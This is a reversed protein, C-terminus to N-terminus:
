FVGKVGLRFVRPALIGTPNGFTAGLTYSTSTAASSNTINFMEFDPEVQYREKIHLARSVKFNWVPVTPGQFQGYPGLRVTIASQNLKGGSTGAGSFTGVEQGYVGSQMRLFSTVKFHLPANYTVDGRAEWNWTNDIPFFDDNPDGQMQALGNIWRHYKTIWFTGMANFRTSYRKVVSAEITSYTDPRSSPNNLYENSSTGTGAPYTYLTITGPLYSSGNGTENFTVPNTYSSYPHGVNFGNGTYTTTAGNSGLNSGPADASDYLNYASHGIYGVNVAINKAVQREIRATYEYFTPQTLNPNNVQSIAGGSSLIAPPTASNLTAIFAPNADCAFEDYYFANAAGNSYCASNAGSWAFIDDSITNPNVQNAYLDGMTDRFMGFSGKVVTKGDGRVDWAAGVRPVFDKWTLVTAAPITAAPFLNAFQGTPKNEAPYFNNYREWRVGYNIVLHKLSWTDTAFLSQSYLYNKPLVPYNFMEIESGAAPTCGAPCGTGTPAGNFILLYDGANNNGLVATNAEEWTEDSGFKFQHERWVYGVL